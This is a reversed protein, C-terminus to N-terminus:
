CGQTRPATYTGPTGPGTPCANQASTKVAGGIVVQLDRSVLIRITQQRIILKKMTNRGQEANIQASTKM